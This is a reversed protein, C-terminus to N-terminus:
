ARGDRQEDAHDDRAGSARRRAEYEALMAAGSDSLVWTGRTPGPVLAGGKICRRLHPADVAAVRGITGGGEKLCSALAYLNLDTLRVVKTDNAPKPSM